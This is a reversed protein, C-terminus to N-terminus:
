HPEAELKKIAQSVEELDKEIQRKLEKLRHIEKVKSDPESPGTMDEAM